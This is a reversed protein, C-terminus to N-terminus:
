KIVKTYIKDQLSEPLSGALALRASNKIKYCIKPNKKKLIKVILDGVLKPDNQKKLEKDMMFKLKTLPAKFYKSEKVMKEYEDNANGLM